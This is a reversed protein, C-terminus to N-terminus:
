STWRSTSYSGELHFIFQSLVTAVMGGLISFLGGMPTVRKWLFCALIAPTLGAGVMVYAYYAMSLISTFVTSLLLATVGLILIMVRQFRVIEKETADPRFFRHYIDRTINTSPIM